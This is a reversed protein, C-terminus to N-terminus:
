LIRYIFRLIPFALYVGQYLVLVVSRTTWYGGPKVDHRPLCHWVLFQRPNRRFGDYEHGKKGVVAGVWPCCTAVAIIVAIVM